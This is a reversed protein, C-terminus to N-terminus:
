DSSENFDLSFSEGDTGNKRQEEMYNNLDFNEAEM